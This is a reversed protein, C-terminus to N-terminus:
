SQVFKNLAARRSRETRRASTTSTVSTATGAKLPSFQKEGNYRIAAAM